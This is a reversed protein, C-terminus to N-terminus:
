DLYDEIKFDGEKRLIKKSYEFTIKFCHYDSTIIYLFNNDGLKVAEYIPNKYKELNAHNFAQENSSYLSIGQINKIQDFENNPEGILEKARKM